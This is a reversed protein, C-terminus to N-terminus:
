KVPVPAIMHNGWHWHLLGSIYIITGTGTFCGQFIYSQGLALSAVRFYIHNDWHWHLLGSIYIITGTGTFCDQFIYSQGLALSVVRFYIHNDWHWHLLGSIYIIAGTGTFCGQISHIILDCLDVFFVDYACCFLACCCWICIKCLIVYTQDIRVWQSSGAQQLTEHTM